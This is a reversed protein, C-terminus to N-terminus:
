LCCVLLVQKAGGVAGGVLVLKAGGLSTELATLYSVSCFSISSSVAQAAPSVSSIAVTVSPESALGPPRVLPSLLFQSDCVCLAPAASLM